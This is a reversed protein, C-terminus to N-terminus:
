RQIRFAGPNATHEYKAMGLSANLTATAVSGSSSDRGLVPHMAVPALEDHGSAGLFNNQM